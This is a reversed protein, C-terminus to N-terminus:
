WHCFSVSASLRWSSDTRAHGQGVSVNAPPLFGDDFSDTSNSLMTGLSPQGSLKNLVNVSHRRGHGRPIGQAQGDLGVGMNGMQGFQGMEAQTGFPNVGVGLPLTSHVRRHAGGRAPALGPTQFSM